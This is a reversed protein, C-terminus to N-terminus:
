VRSRVRLRKSSKWCRGSAGHRRSSPQRRRQLMRIPKRPRKDRLTLIPSPRQALSQTQTPIRKATKVKRLPFLPNKMRPHQKPPVRQLKRAKVPQRKPPQFQRHSPAQHRRAPNTQQQHRRRRWRNVPLLLHVAVGKARSQLAMNGAAASIEQAIRKAERAITKPDGTLGLSRLLRLKTRAQELKQLAAAKRDAVFQKKAQSLTRISDNAKQQEDSQVKAQDLTRVADSTKRQEDSLPKALPNNSSAASNASLVGRGSNLDLVSKTKLLLANAQNSTAQKGFYSTVSVM